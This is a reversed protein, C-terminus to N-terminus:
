DKGVYPDTELAPTVGHQEFIDKLKKSDEETLNALEAQPKNNTMTQKDQENSQPM